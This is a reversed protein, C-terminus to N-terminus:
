RVASRSSNPGIATEVPIQPGPRVIAAASRRIATLRPLASREPDYRRAAPIAVCQRRGANAPTPRPLVSRRSNEEFIGFERRCTFDFRIDATSPIVM